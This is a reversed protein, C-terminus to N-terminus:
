NWLLVHLMWTLLLILYAMSLRLVNVKTFFLLPFYSLLAVFMILIAIEM